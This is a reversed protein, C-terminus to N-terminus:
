WAFYPFQCGCEAAIACSISHYDPPSQGRGIPHDRGFRLM